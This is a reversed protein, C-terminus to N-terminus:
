GYLEKIRKDARKWFDSILKDASQFKYPRSNKKGEPHLHDYAVVRAKYNKRGDIARHANDMGFIRKGDKSHLTLSYTIGHPVQKTKDVRHAEFKVWCGHDSMGFTEGNLDLLTDLNDDRNNTDMSTM